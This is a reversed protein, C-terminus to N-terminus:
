YTLSLSNIYGKKTKFSLKKKGRLSFANKWIFSAIFVPKFLYNLISAKINGENEPKVVM